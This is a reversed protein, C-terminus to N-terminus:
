PTRLWKREEIMEWKRKFWVRTAERQDESQAESLLKFIAIALVCLAGAGGFLWKLVVWTQTEPM